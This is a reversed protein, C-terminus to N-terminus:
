KNDTMVIVPQLSWLFYTWNRQIGLKNSSNRQRLHVSKNGFINFNKSGYAVPAYIKRTSTLEQNPDDETIVAFGAAQLSAVTMLILQKDPLPQRLALQCCKDWVDNIDHFENM